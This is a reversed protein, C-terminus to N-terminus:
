NSVIRFDVNTRAALVYRGYRIITKFM